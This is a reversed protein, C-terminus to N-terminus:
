RPRVGQRILTKLMCRLTPSNRVPRNNFDFAAKHNALTRWQYAGDRQEEVNAARCKRGERTCGRCRSLNLADVEAPAWARYLNVIGKRFAM